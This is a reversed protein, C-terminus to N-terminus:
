AAIEDLIEPERELMDSVRNGVEEVQFPKSLFQVHGGLKLPCAHGSMLLVQARVNDKRFADAIEVCRMGPLNMDILLLCINAPGHESLISQADEASYATFVQYGLAGLQCAILGCIAPCEDAVLVKRARPVPDQSPFVPSINM